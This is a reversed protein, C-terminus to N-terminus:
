PGKQSKSQIDVACTTGDATMQTCRKMWLGMYLCRTLLLQGERAQVITCKQEDIVLAQEREILRWKFLDDGGGERGISMFHATRDPRFCLESYGPPPAGLQKAADHRWCGLLKARTFETPLVDRQPTEARACLAVFSLALVGVITRFSATM